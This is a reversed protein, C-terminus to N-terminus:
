PVIRFAIRRHVPDAEVLEVEVKAGLPLPADGQVRAEIALDALMATGQTPDRRDIDVISATFREGVRRALVLSEALDIVAREYHGARRDAAAMTAPLGPLAQLIWDPPAQDACLAVCLEGTYRDVLRRLPATCHTYTSALASHMPHEPLDGDFAMYGAGRLVTTSSM